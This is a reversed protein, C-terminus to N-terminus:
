SYWKPIGEYADATQKFGNQTLFRTLLEDAEIHSQEPDGVNCFRMMEALRGDSVGRLSEDPPKRFEALAASALRKIESLEQQQRGASGKPYMAVARALEILRETADTEMPDSM